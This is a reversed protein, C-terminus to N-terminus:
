QSLGEKCQAYIQKGKRQAKDMSGQKVATAVFLLNFEEKM